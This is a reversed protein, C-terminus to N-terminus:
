EMRVIQGESMEFVGNLGGQATFSAEIEYWLGIYAGCTSCHIPTDSLVDKPISLYITHCELCELKGNFQQAM